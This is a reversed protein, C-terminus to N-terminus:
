AAQAVSATPTCAAREQEVQAVAASEDVGSAVLALWRRLVVTDWAVFRASFKVPKPFRGNRVRNRIEVDSLPIVPRHGEGAGNLDAMRVFGIEPWNSPCPYLATTM